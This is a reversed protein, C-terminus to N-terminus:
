QQSSCHSKIDPVQSQSKCQSCQIDPRLSHVMIAPVDPISYEAGEVVVGKDINARQRQLTLYTISVYNCGVTSQMWWCHQDATGGTSEEQHSSEEVIVIMRQTYAFHANYAYEM